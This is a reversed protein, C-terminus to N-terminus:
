KRKLYDFYGSISSMISNFNKTIYTSLKEGFLTAMPVMFKSQREWEMWDCVNSMMYGFFVSIGVVGVFELKAFKRKQGLEFSLKAILGTFVGMLLIWKAMLAELIRNLIDLAEKDM